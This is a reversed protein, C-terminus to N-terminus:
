KSAKRRYKLGAQAVALVEPKKTSHSTYKLMQVRNYQKGAQSARRAISVREQYYIRAEDESYFRKTGYVGAEVVFLPKLQETQTGEEMVLETPQPIPKFAELLGSIKMDNPIVELNIYSQGTESDLEWWIRRTFRAYYRTQPAGPATTLWERLNKLARLLM